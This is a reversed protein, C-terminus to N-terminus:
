WDRRAYFNGIPLTWRPPLEILLTGHCFQSSLRNCPHPHHDSVIVGFTWRIVKREFRGILKLFLFIGTGEARAIFPHGGLFSKRQAAISSSPSDPDDWIFEGKEMDFPLEVSSRLPHVIDHIGNTGM